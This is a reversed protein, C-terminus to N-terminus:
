SCQMSCRIAELLSFEQQGQFLPKRTFLEGLICSFLTLYPILTMYWWGWRVWGVEGM